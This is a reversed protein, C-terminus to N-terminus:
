FLLFPFLIVASFFLDGSLYKGYDGSLYKGACLTRLFSVLEFYKISVYLLIM